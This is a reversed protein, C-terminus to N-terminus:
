NIKADSLFNGHDRTSFLGPRPEDVIVASGRFSITAADGRVGCPVQSTDPLM